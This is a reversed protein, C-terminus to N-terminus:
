CLPAALYGFYLWDSNHSITIMLVTNSKVAAPLRAFAAELQVAVSTQSAWCHLIQKKWGHTQV